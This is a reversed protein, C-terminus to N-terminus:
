KSEELRHTDNDDHTTSFEIIESYQLAKVRHKVGRPIDIAEGPQLLYTCDAVQIECIGHLLYFTEDKNKHLHLSGQSGPNFVLIKGCYTKNVIWVEYGWTKAVRNIEKRPIM